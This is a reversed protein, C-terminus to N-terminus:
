PPTPLSRLPPCTPEAPGLPAGDRLLRLNVAARLYAPDLELARVLEGEAEGTRCRAALAFALNGHARPNAPAKAVADQWFGVEDAYVRNRLVTAVGLAVVLAGVAARRMGGAAAWPSLWLGALWAPGLLSLYLQRESAPDPRPLWWGTWPLWLLFWLLGFALAPRRRLAALGLALTGLLAAAEFAVGVGLREVPELLPDAVQRDIRFVQGTLWGLADVHTLANVGPTRLGASRALMRGYTPSAAVLMAAVALVGLHPAVARLAAGWRFPRQVDVALLLLLALPLAVVSEKSLLAAAFLLPSLGWAMWGVARERGSLWAVASGLALAGAMSSSRGSVYTVAETQVPHLAFLLAGLWPAFRAADGKVGAGEAVRRLLWLALLAAAAHIALNVAHFGALGFGSQRNLAFSLKLLPRIGPMSEWWASLTAVRPENVIVNWDDFQFTGAFSGAWAAAVAALLVLADGRRESV